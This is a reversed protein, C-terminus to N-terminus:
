STKTSRASHFFLRCRSVIARSLKIVGDAHDVAAQAARASLQRRYEDLLTQLRRNQDASIGPPLIPQDAPGTSAPQFVTNLVARFPQGTTSTGNVAFRFPRTPIRVFGNFEGDSSSDSQKWMTITQLSRGNIDVLEFRITAASEIGFIDAEVFYERGSVPPMPAPADMPGERGFALTLFRIRLIEVPEARHAIADIEGRYSQAGAIGECWV